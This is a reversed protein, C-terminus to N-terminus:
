VPQCLEERLLRAAQLADGYELRWGTANRALTAALSVWERPRAFRNFAHDLIHRTTEAGGVPRLTARTGNRELVVVHKLAVPPTATEAGLEAALISSKYRDELHVTLRAPDLGLVAMSKSGLWLAKPYPTVEGRHSTVILAEDSVYAFGECLCAAVLTSKGANSAGPFAIGEGAWAVAGAHVILSDVAFVSTRNVTALIRTLAKARTGGDVISEEGRTVRYGDDTTTAAIIVDPDRKSRPFPSFVKAVLDALVPDTSEIRVVTGLSEFVLEERNTM